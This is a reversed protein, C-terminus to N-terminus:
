PCFRGTKMRGRGSSLLPPPPVGAAARPRRDPPELAAPVMPSLTIPGQLSSERKWNRLLPRCPHSCRGHGRHASQPGPCRSCPPEPRTPPPLPLPSLSSSRAGGVKPRPSALLRPSPLPPPPRCLTRRRHQPIPSFPPLHRYATTSRLSPTPPRKIPRSLHHRRRPLHGAPFSRSRGKIAHAALIQAPTM